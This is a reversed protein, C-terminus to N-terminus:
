EEENSDITRTEITDVIDKRILSWTGKTNLYYFYRDDDSYVEFGQIIEKDLTKITIRIKRYKGTKRVILGIIIAILASFVLFMAIYVFSWFYQQNESDILGISSFVILALDLIFIAAFIAWSFHNLFHNLNNAKQMPTYVTGCYGLMYCSKMVYGYFVIIIILFVPVSDFEEIGTGFLELGM